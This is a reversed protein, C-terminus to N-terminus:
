VGYTITATTGSPVYLYVMSLDFGSTADAGDEPWIVTQNQPVSAGRAAAVNTDGVRMPGGLASFCVWRARQGPTASLQHKANDGTIDAITYAQMGHITDCRRSLTIANPWTVLPASIPIRAESKVCLLGGEEAIQGIVM